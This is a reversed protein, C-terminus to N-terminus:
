PADEPEVVVREDRMRAVTRLDEVIDDRQTRLRRGLTELARQITKQVAPVTEGTLLAIEPVTRGDQGLAMRDLVDAATRIVPCRGPVDRSVGMEAVVLGVVYLRWAHWTNQIPVERIANM